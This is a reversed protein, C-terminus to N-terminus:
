APAANGCRRSAPSSSPTSTSPMRISRWGPRSMPRCRTSCMMPTPRCWALFALSVRDLMRGSAELAGITNDFTPAAPNDAIKRVEALHQAMATEFAPAYDSDHILNFPPAQFPLTSPAAFPNATQAAAPVAFAALASSAMLLAARFLPHAMPFAKEAILNEARPRFQHPTSCPRHAFALNSFVNAGAEFCKIRCEARRDAVTPPAGDGCPNAQGEHMFIM